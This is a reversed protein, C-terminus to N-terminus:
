TQILVYAHTNCSTNISTDIKTTSIVPRIAQWDLPGRTRLASWNLETSYRTDSRDNNDKRIHMEISIATLLHNLYHMRRIQPSQHLTTTANQLNKKNVFTKIDM